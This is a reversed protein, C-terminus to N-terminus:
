TNKKKKAKKGQAIVIREANDGKEQIRVREGKKLDSLSAPAFEKKGKKFEVKTNPGFHVTKEVPKAVEGTPTGKKKKKPHVKVVLTGKDKNESVSEIVGAIAHGKKKGKKAKAAQAEGPVLTLLSGVLGAIVLARLLM